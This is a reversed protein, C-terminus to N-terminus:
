RACLPVSAPRLVPAHPQHALHWLHLGPHRGRRSAPHHLRAAAPRYLIVGRRMTVFVSLQLLLTVIPMLYCVIFGPSRQYTNTEDFTYYLDTPQSVVVLIMGVILVARAAALRKPPNRYGAENVSVTIAYMNLAYIVVLILFYVLFNSIRVMWFGLASPDGRYLYATRDAILLLASALEFLVLAQRKDPDLTRSRLVFVSFIICAGSLVLMIDLQYQRLFDLIMGPGGEFIDSGM